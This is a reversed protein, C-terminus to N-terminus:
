GADRVLGDSLDLAATIAGVSSLASVAEVRPIPAAYWQWTLPAEIGTLRAAIAAAVGGLNGTVCVADGPRAGDRRWVHPGCQGILTIDLFAHEHAAITDGGLLCAGFRSAKDALGRALALADSADWNPPIALSAFAFRPSAGMAAIDSLAATMARAGIQYPTLWDRRFHRGEIMADTTVAWTTDAGARVLACDDGMGLIVDPDACNILETIKAILGFEGLSALDVRM